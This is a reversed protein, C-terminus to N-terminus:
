KIKLEIFKAVFMGILAGFGTFKENALYVPFAFAFAMFLYYILDFLNISEGKLQPKQKM